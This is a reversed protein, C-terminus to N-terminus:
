RNTAALAQRKATDVRFDDFVGLHEVLWANSWRKWGFGTRKQARM